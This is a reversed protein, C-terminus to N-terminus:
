DIDHAAGACGHVRPRVRSQFSGQKGRQLRHARDSTSDEALLLTSTVVSNIARLYGVSPAGTSRFRGNFGSRRVPIAVTGSFKLRDTLDSPRYIRSDLAGMVLALALGFIISFIIAPVVILISRISSPRAPPNALAILQVPPSLALAQEHTEQSRRALSLSVKLTAIQERLDTAQESDSSGRPTKQGDADLRALRTELAAIRESLTETADDISRVGQLLPDEVYMRAIRNAIEAAMEPSGASFDISVLNSRMVQNVKLRRDLDEPRRLLKRIAADRSLMSFARDMFTPSQLMAIQTDVSADNGHGSGDDAAANVSLLAAATFTPKHFVSIILAAFTGAAICIVILAFRRRVHGLARNLDYRPPESQAYGEPHALSTPNAIVIRESRTLDSSMDM